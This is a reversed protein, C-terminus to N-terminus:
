LSYPRRQTADYPGKSLFNYRESGDVQSIRQYIQMMKNLKLRIDSFYGFHEASTDIDSLGREGKKDTHIPKFFNHDLRLHVKEMVKKDADRYGRLLSYTDNAFAALCFIWRVLEDCDAEVCIDLSRSLGTLVPFAPEMLYVGLIQLEGDGFTTIIPVACDATPVGARLLRVAIETGLSLSQARPVASSDDRGKAESGLCFRQNIAVCSESIVGTSMVLKSHSDANGSGVFEVIRDLVVKLNPDNISTESGGKVGAAEHSIILKNSLKSICVAKDRASPRIKTQHVDLANKQLQRLRTNPIYAAWTCPVGFVHYCDRYEKKSAISSASGLPKHFM